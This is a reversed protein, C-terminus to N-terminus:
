VIKRMCNTFGNLKGNCLVCSIRSACIICHHLLAAAEGNVISHEEEKQEAEANDDVPDFNQM